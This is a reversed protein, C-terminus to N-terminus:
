LDEIIPIFENDDDLLHNMGSRDKLDETQENGSKISRYYKKQQEEIWNRQRTESVYNKNNELPPLLHSNVQLLAGKKPTVRCIFKGSGLEINPSFEFALENEIDAGGKESGSGFIKIATNALISKKLRSRGEFQGFHQNALTIYVGYKRAESLLKDIKETLFNQCEDAYVYVPTRKEVPQKARQLAMINLEAFFFTGLITAGTSSLDSQRANILIIKGENLLDAIDFSSKEVFFIHRLIQNGFAAEFRTVLAMKAANLRNSPFTYSFYNRLMNDWHQDLLHSYPTVGKGEARLLEIFDGLHTNPAELLLKFCNLLLSRMNDSFENKMIAEFGDALEQARVSLANRKEFVNRGKPEYDLPNYAPLKQENAFEGSIYVLRERLTPNEWLSFRLCEKVLDGHPDLVFISNGAKLDEHIMVKLLETKGSGTGGLVYCHRARIKSPLICSLELHDLGIKKLKQINTQFKQEIETKTSNRLFEGRPIFEELDYITQMRIHSSIDTPINKIEPFQKKIQELYHQFIFAENLLIELSSQFVQYWFVGIMSAAFKDKMILSISTKGITIGSYKTNGISLSDLENHLSQLRKNFSGLFIDKTQIEKIWEKKKQKIEAKQELISAIINKKTRELEKWSDLMKQSTDNYESPQLIKQLNQRTVQEDNKIYFELSEAEFSFNNIHLINKIFRKLHFPKLFQNELDRQATKTKELLRACAHISEELKTTFVELTRWAPLMTRINGFLAHRQELLIDVIQQTYYPLIQLVKRAKSPPLLEKREVMRWETLVNCVFIGILSLYPQAIHPHWNRLKEYYAYFAKIETIFNGQNNEFINQIEDHLLGDTQSLFLAFTRKKSREYSQIIWNEITINM